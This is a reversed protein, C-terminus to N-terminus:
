QVVPEDDTKQKKAPTAENLLDLPRSTTSPDTRKTREAHMRKMESQLTKDQCIRKVAEKMPETLLTNGEIVLDFGTNFLDVLINGKKLITTLQDLGFNSLLNILTVASIRVVMALSRDKAFTLLDSIISEEDLVTKTYSENNCYQSASVIAQSKVSYDNSKILKVCREVFTKDNRLMTNIIENSRVHVIVSFMRAVTREDTHSKILPLYLEDYDKKFTGALLVRAVKDASLWRSFLSLASDSSNPKERLIKKITGFLIAGHGEEDFLNYKHQTGIYIEMIKSLLHINARLRFLSDIKKEDMYYVIMTIINDVLGSEAMITDKILKLASMNSYPEPAPNVVFKESVLSCIFSFIDVAKHM